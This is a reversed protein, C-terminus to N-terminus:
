SARAEMEMVGDARLAVRELERDLREVSSRLVLTRRGTPVLALRAFVSLGKRITSEDVCFHDAAERLTLYKASPKRERRQRKRRPSRPTAPADPQAESNQFEPM